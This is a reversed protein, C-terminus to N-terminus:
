ARLPLCAKAGCRGARPPAPPPPLAAATCLARHVVIEALALAQDVNAAQDVTLRTITVFRCATCAACVQSSACHLHYAGSSEFTM